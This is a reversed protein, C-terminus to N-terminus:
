METLKDICININTVIEKLRSILERQKEITESKSKSPCKRLFSEIMIEDHNIKAELVMVILSLDDVTLM